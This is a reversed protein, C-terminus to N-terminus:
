EHIPIMSIRRSYIMRFDKLMLELIDNRSIDYNDLHLRDIMMEMTSRVEDSITIDHKDDRYRYREEVSRQINALIKISLEVDKSLIHMLNHLLSAYITLSITINSIEELKYENPIKSTNLTEIISDCDSNYNELLHSWQKWRNLLYMDKSCLADLELDNNIKCRNIERPSPYYKCDLDIFQQKLALWFLVTGYMRHIMDIAITKQVRLTLKASLLKSNSSSTHQYITTFIDVILSITAVIIAIVAIYYDRRTIQIVEWDVSDRATNLATQGTKVSISDLLARMPESIFETSDAAQVIIDPTAQLFDLM